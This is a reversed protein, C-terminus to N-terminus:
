ERGYYIIGKTEKIKGKILKIITPKCIGIEHRFDEITTKITYKEGDKIFTCGSYKFDKKPNDGRSFGKCVRLSGNILKRISDVSIDYKKSFESLSDGIIYKVGEKYLVEGSFISIKPKFSSKTKGSIFDNYYVFDIGKYNSVLNNCCSRVGSGFLEINTINYFESVTSFMVIKGDVFAVYKPNQNVDTLFDNRYLDIPIRNNIEGKTLQRNKYFKIYEDKNKSIWADIFYGRSTKVKSRSNVDRSIKWFFTRSFNYLSCICDARVGDRILGIIINRQKDSITSEVTGGNGGLSINYTNKNKVFDENVIEIERNIADERCNFFQLIEVKFNDYGYKCVASIFPSKNGYKKYSDAHSQSKIGCGIYGDDLNNTTHYGIYIKNNIINTTKYVYNYKKGSSM